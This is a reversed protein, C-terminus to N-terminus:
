VPGGRLDAVRALATAYRGGLDIRTITSPDYLQADEAWIADRGLERWQLGVATWSVPRGLTFDITGHRETFLAALGFHDIASDVLGRVGSSVDMLPTPPKPPWAQRSELGRRVFRGEAAIEISDLDGIRLALYGNALGAEFVSLLLWEASVQVVYGAVAETRDISRTVELYEHHAEAHRLSQLRRSPRLLSSM